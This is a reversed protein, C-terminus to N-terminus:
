AGARALGRALMDDAIAEGSRWADSARAGLCWDGGAYLAGDRVFPHGLPTAVLGYRWGQVDAHLADAPDAGIEECLLGLMADRARARDMDIRAASWDPGAQAVWTRLAATRGPKTADQAIWALPRGADRRTVFPAPSSRPFAAMLTLCPRMEAAAAAQAVASAAGVLAAVQPAPVTLVVHTASYAGGDTEVAFGAGDHVLGTVRIQQRVDLGAALAGPLASMRPVGVRCTQGDGVDWSAVAEPAAAAMADIEPADPLYQAGHDFYVRGTGLEVRRSAMRGGIGRGKDILTVGIGAARLRRACAIGALGAGVILVRTM